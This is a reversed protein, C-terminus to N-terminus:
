EPIFARSLPKIAAQAHAAKEACPKQRSAKTKKLKVREGIPIEGDARGRRKRRGL